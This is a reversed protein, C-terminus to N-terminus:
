LIETIRRPLKQLRGNESSSCNQGQREPNPRRGGDERQHVGDQQFGQGYGLGMLQIPHTVVLVTADVASHLSAPREKGVGLVLMKAVVDLTEALKRRKLGAAAKGSDASASAVLRCLRLADLVDGSVKKRHEPDARVDSTNEPLVIVTLARLRDHDHAIPGPVLHVLHVRRDDARAEREITLRKRDNTNRRRAERSIPELSRRRKPNRDMPLTKDIATWRQHIKRGRIPEVDDATDSGARLRLADFCLQLHEKSLPEQARDRLEIVPLFLEDWFLGHVQRGTAGANLHHAVRYSDPRRSRIHTEPKTRSMAQALTAFRMNTRAALRRSCVQRRVASPAGRERCIACTSVSLVARARTPPRAPIASAKQPVLRM